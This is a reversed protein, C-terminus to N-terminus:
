TTVAVPAQYYAGRWADDNGDGDGGGTLVGSDRWDQGCRRLCACHFWGSGSTLGM